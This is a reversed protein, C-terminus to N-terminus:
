QQRFGVSGIKGDSEMSIRWETSGHEFKVEYIDAGGPGVGKFTVLEVAGLQTIAAKLQPLQQRTVDAIGTGMLEYKPQGLRLEEINRRLAAESGPAPTQDKFRKAVAAALAAAQAEDLRKAPMDMGNQHLTLQTAKGQADTDFTIQADVVKLFFKREGEPFLEAKPQGTLQGFLRDGDRSIAMIANPALQYSGVYNDFLKTEITVEKHEKIPEVKSLPYSADLLHRGIDDPGAPSSLNSLVVVGARSKPDYGMYTRYGGTGGNHWIISNGDKTQVHWAYAIEMNPSGAPRRISVEAAMAAALPTRTYGLNAALFTLMDNATSRLAGAGAFAQPLDWNSVANLNPGHGIALRAKMEPSLTVRTDNMRLPECIRSRVMAEYDMGARQTLAYGLLGVGLNSYEYQAGIDRTLQYGALFQYLQEVSYAVYPNAPDKSNFNSPMRPLGSSQTSLDQLTIKRNNREPVKANAPLYKAVPDSLAVEGKQAMDMLVLSTFVKTMSGIEFVTDGNLPRKDDKALSGYAVVRRGKADIVGVVIGIGLNEAGIRDSLIKRIESDPPVPSEVPAQAFAATRLLIIIIAFVFANCSTM